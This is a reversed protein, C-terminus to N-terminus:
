PDSDTPGTAGVPQGSLSKLRQDALGASPTNPYVTVIRTYLSAAEEREGLEEHCKGAQLLALAQWTPYGYLIEVPLYERIATEYNKQHFYTEGIRWQAMAATEKKAGTTSRIVQRFAERAGEFDAEGSLCVGIVYDAEHQQEFDPYETEIKSAITRAETWQRQQALVQARRLPIMALWAEQRAQTQRALRDLQRGAQEYNGLRYETEAVWFEAVLRRPSEPFAELLVAFSQGVQPWDAQAVAIQGRLYLAHERIATNTQDGLIAKVLEKARDYDQAAYARRALRYTADSDYRSQPYQKRLREFLATSQDERDLDDLVWAWEYLAADLDPLEPYREVLREYLVAAEQDQQLKDRLRAAALLAKPHQPTDPYEDIVLDYMALAADPSGLQQLIRGRVWAAEVAVAAPPNKALLKEFTAAAESLQGARYQSWGVGHLGKISYEDSDSDTQLWRFLQASWDADNAEYAAEALQETTAAILKHAAHKSLLEAYAKKADDLRGARAYCIALEGRGKVEADGSPATALFVELPEIAEPYRRLALLLSGQTLQASAKLRTETADLVPLLADLADQYRGLGELAQALLYRDAPGQQDGAAQVLPELLRLAEDYRKRKLLSQARVRQADARLASQPFREELAAMERDVSEYDEAQLAIQIKGLMVDDIWENGAVTSAIVEDFQRDAEEARGVRRLADGAHYRMSAVLAHQPDAATAALLTKAAGAWDERGRQTMGLWYRAEIGVRPDSTTSEFLPQAEDLRDLKLLAWGRGLRAHAKWPSETRATEFVGFTEIARVYEGMAYQLAGLHFQADDALPSDAKAAVAGYLQLAEQNEGRRELARALGFRCDDQLRGQPFRDLGERFFRGASTADGEGLALDGLYPLVYANLNDDPYQDRFRKLDAKALEPKGALYAAEGARFLAPRAYRGEPDRNLYQRFHADAEETNGLQLLAEALFFISQNAKAHRPYERLLSQFAEVALNWRQQQYHGAAVAYRDDAEDARGVAVTLAGILLSAAFVQRRRVLISSVSPSM